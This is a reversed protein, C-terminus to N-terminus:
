TSGYTCARCSRCFIETKAQLTPNPRHLRNFYVDFNRGLAPGHWHRLLPDAREQIRFGGSDLEKNIRVGFDATKAFAERDADSIFTQFGKQEISALQAHQPNIPQGEEIERIIRIRPDVQQQAPRDQSTSSKSFFSM